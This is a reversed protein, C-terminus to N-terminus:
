SLHILKATWFATQTHTHTRTHTSAHTRTDVLAHFLDYDSCMSVQVSTHILSVMIAHWFLGTQGVKSPLNGGWVLWFNSYSLWSLKVACPSYMSNNRSEFTIEAMNIKTCMCKTITQWRYTRSAKHKRTTPGDTQAHMCPDTRPNVNIDRSDVSIILHFLDTAFGYSVLSVSFAMPDFTLAVSSM